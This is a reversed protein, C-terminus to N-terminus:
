KTEVFKHQVHFLMDICIELIKNWDEASINVFYQIILQLLLAGKCIEFPANQTKSYTLTHIGIDILKKIAGSDNQLVNRGYLITQNLATFMLTSLMQTQIFITPFSKFIDWCSDSVRKSLRIATVMYKLIQEEFPVQQDTSLYNFLPALRKEIEEQYQSMALRNEAIKQFINWAKNILIPKCGGVNMKSNEYEYQVREVLVEIFSQFLVPNERLHHSFNRVIDELVGYFHSKRIFKIYYILQQFIETVYPSLKITLEDQKFIFLLAEIAQGPLAGYQKGQCGICEVVFKLFLKFMNEKEEEQFLAEIYHEIFLCM